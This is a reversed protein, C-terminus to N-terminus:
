ALGRRVAWATADARGRADIRRYIDAVHREVTNITIGLHGAIEDNTEGAAILRLVDLQRATLPRAAPRDTVPDRVTGDRAFAALLDVVVDTDTFLLGASPGPLIRLVAGPVAAALEESMALPIVSGEARHLVLTPCAIRAAADTVDIVSAADLTARAIAPTTATRVWDAALRGEEGATWGLWAHAIADAFTGWDREILSLLAQTAPDSMPNWGRTSGGFLVLRAVRQPSAAAFAIAHTCSNYFGLLTAPRQGVTARLVADLDAVM